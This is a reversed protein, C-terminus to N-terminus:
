VNSVGAIYALLTEAATNGSRICDPIGVGHYGNGALVLGPLRSALSEIRAVRDVHGLHYQAMSQPWRSIHVHLPDGRVGLLDQLDQCVKREIDADSDEYQAQQLAGGVFARLLVQDDPARGAFKVSSFSCAILSRNEVAPVVFGMGDLAHAVDERRFALNVIASSAYSINLEASLDADVSKLLSSSVVAPLALCVADVDLDADDQLQV